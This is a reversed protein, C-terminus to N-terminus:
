RGMFMMKECLSRNIPEGPLGNGPTHSSTRANYYWLWGM